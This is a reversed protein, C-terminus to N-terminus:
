RIWAMLGISIFTGTAYGLIGVLLAPLVLDDWGKASAMAAATTPGGVAANSAVALERIPLKFLTKAAWLVGFHVTLQVASFAALWAGSRALGRVRGAAGIAAVFLQMAVVGVIRGAPALRSGVKPLATALAVAVATTLPLLFHPAKAAAAVANALAVISLAAAVAAAADTASITPDARKAGGTGSGISQGSMAFLGVFYPAVIANDAAIGAAVLEPAAGGVEAVSVYNVAGGIHRATLASAMTARAALAPIGRQLPVLHWAVCTGAITGLTAVLFPALLKRGDRRVRDLDADFLLAAVALPVLKKVVTGYVPSAAPLAGLNALLLAAVMTVVNSSLAAGLKSNEEAYLGLAGTTGLLAWTTWENQLPLARLATPRPATMPRRNNRLSPTSRLPTLLAGAGCAYLLMALM